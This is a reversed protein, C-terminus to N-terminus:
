RRRRAAALGSLALLSAAGPAPVGYDVNDIGFSDGATARITVTTFGAPNIFGATILSAGNGSFLTITDGADSELLARPNPAQDLGLLDTLDVFFAQQPENFTFTVVVDNNLGGNFLSGVDVFQDGDTPRTGTMQNPENLVALPPLFEFGENVASVVFDDVVVEDRAATDDDPVLGEFSENLLTIGADNAAQTFLGRSSFTQSLAPAAIAGVAASALLIRM